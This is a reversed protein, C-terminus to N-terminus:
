VSLNSQREKFLSYLLAAPVQFAHISIWSLSAEGPGRQKAFTYLKSAASIYDCGATPGEVLLMDWLLCFVGYADNMTILVRKRHLCTVPMDVEAHWCQDTVVLIRDPPFPTLLSFMNGTNIFCTELTQSNVNSPFHMYFFFIHVHVYKYM